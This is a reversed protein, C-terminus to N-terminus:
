IVYPIFRYKVKKVYEQYEPDKILHQEETIARFYYIGSVAVVACLIGLIKLIYDWVGTLGLGDFHILLTPIITLIWYTNKCIYAPHRVINYPFSTVTGRNTLNSARTWLALSAVTYITIFFVALVRFIWTAPHNIDGFAVFNDDQHMSIVKSTLMNFPPYCILCFMIGTISIDVTRIKNNFISLETFYGISFIAVDLTFITLLSYEYLFDRTNVFFEKLATIGFDSVLIKFDDIFGLLQYYKNEFNQINMFLSTLMIYGFFAKIFVLMIAQKEQYTPVFHKLENKIQECTMNGMQPLKFFVRKFYEVVHVSHSNWITKPRFWFYFLPAFTAYLAFISWYFYKVKFFSMITIDM